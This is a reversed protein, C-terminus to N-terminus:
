DMQDPINVTAQVFKVESRAPIITDEDLTVRYVKPLAGIHYLPIHRGQWFLSPPESHFTAMNLQRMAGLGFLVDAGLDEAVLVHMKIKTKSEKFQLYVKNISKGVINVPTENAAKCTGNYPTLGGESAQTKNWTNKEVIAFPTSGDDILIEVSLDGDLFGPAYYNGIPPQDVLEIEEAEKGIFDQEM